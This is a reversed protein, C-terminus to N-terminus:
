HKDDLQIFEHDLLKEKLTSSDDDLMKQLSKAAPSNSKLIEDEMRKLEKFIVGLQYQETESCILGLAMSLAGLYVVKGSFPKVLGVIRKMLQKPETFPPLSATMYNTAFMINIPIGLLLPFISGTVGQLVASRVDICTNCRYPDMLLPRTVYFKHAMYATMSPIVGTALISTVKAFEKLKLQRRLRQNIYLAAISTVGSLFQASYLLSYTQWKPEWTNLISDAADSM